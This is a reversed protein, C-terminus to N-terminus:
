SRLILALYALILKITEVPMLIIKMSNTAKNHNMMTTKLVLIRLFNFNNGVESKIERLAGSLSEMEAHLKEQDDSTLLQQWKELELL